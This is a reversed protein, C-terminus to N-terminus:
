AVIARRGRSVRVLSAASLEALARHATGVAVGYRAALAKM